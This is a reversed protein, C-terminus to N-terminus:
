SPQRYVPTVGYLRLVRQGPRMRVAVTFGDRDGIVEICRGDDVVPDVRWGRALLARSAAVVHQYPTRTGVPDGVEVNVYSVFRDSVGDFVDEPAVPGADETVMPGQGSPLTRAALTTLEDRLFTRAEDIDV